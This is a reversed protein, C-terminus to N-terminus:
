ERGTNRRSYFFVKQGPFSLSSCLSSALFVEKGKGGKEIEERHEGGVGRGARGVDRRRGGGRGKEKRGVPRYGRNERGMEEGRGGEKREGTKEEGSQARM